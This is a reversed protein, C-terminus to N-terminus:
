KGNRGKEFYAGLGAEMTYLMLRSRVLNIFTSRTRSVSRRTSKRERVGNPNAKYLNIVRKYSEVSGRATPTLYTLFTM